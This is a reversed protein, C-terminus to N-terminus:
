LDYLSVTTLHLPYPTHLTVYERLIIDRGNSRGDLWNGEYHKGSTWTYIGYGDIKVNLWEGEYDGNKLKIVPLKGNRRTM